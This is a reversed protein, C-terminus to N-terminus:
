PQVEDVALLFAELISREENGSRRCLIRVRDRLEINDITDPPIQRQIAEQVFEIGPKVTAFEGEEMNELNTLAGLATMREQERTLADVFRIGTRLGSIYTVQERASLSPFNSCDVQAHMPHAALFLVTLAALTGSRM